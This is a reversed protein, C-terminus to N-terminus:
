ERVREREREREREMVHVCLEGCQLGVDLSHDCLQSTRVERSCDLLRDEEGSCRDEAM